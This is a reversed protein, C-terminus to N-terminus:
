YYRETCESKSRHYNGFDERAMKGIAPWNKCWLLPIDTINLGFYYYFNFSGVTQDNEVLLCPISTAGLINQAIPTDNEDILSGAPVMQFYNTGQEVIQDYSAFPTFFGQTILTYRDAVIMIVMLNVTGLIVGLLCLLTRGKRLKFNNTWYSRIRM